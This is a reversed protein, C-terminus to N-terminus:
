RLVDRPNLYPPIELYPISVFPLPFSVGEMAGEPLVVDTDVTKIYTPLPYHTLHGPGLLIFKLLLLQPCFQHDSDAATLEQYVM